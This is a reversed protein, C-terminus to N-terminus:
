SRVRSYSPRFSHRLIISLVLMLLSAALLIVITSYSLRFFIGIRELNYGPAVALGITTLTGVVIGAGGWNLFIDPVTLIRRKALVNIVSVVLMVLTGVAALVAVLDGIIFGIGAILEWFTSM